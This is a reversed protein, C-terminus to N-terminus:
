LSGCNWYCCRTWVAGIGIRNSINATSSRTRLWRSIVRRRCAHLELVTEIEVGPPTRSPDASGRKWGDWQWWWWRWWRGIHHTCCRSCPHIREFTSGKPAFGLVGDPFGGEPDFLLLLHDLLGVPFAGLFCLDPLYNLLLLLGALLLVGWRYDVLRCNWDAAVVVELGFAVEVTLLLLDVRHVDLLVMRDDVEVEREVDLLDMSVTPYASFIVVATLSKGGFCTM